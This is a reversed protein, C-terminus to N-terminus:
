PRAKLMDLGQRLEWHEGARVVLAPHLKDSAQPSEVEIEVESNSRWRGCQSMWDNQWEHVYRGSAIRWIDTGGGNMEDVRCTVFRQGDPSYHPPGSIEHQRGNAIEILLFDYAEMYIKDVLFVGRSPLFAALRYIPCPEDKNACSLDSLRVRRGDDLALVLTGKERGARSGALALATKEAKLAVADSQLAKEATAIQADESQPSVAALALALFLGHM